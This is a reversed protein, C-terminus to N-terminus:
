EEIRISVDVEDVLPLFEVGNKVAALRMDKLFEPNYGKIRAFM